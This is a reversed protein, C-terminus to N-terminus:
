AMGQVTNRNDRRYVEKRKDNTTDEENYKTLWENVKADDYFVFINLKPNDPHIETRILRCGHYMLYGACRLNYIIKHNPKTFTRADTKTIKNEEM